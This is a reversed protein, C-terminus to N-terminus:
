MKVIRTTIIDIKKNAVLASIMIFYLFLIFLFIFKLKSLYVNLPLMINGSYEAM